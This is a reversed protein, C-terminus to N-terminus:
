IKRKLCSSSHLGRVGHCRGWSEHRQVSDCVLQPPFALRSIMWDLGWSLAPDDPSPQEPSHTILNKFLNLIITYM